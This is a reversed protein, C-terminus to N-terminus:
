DNEGRKEGFRQEFEEDTFYEPDAHEWRESEAWALMDAESAPYWDNLHHQRIPIKECEYRWGRKWSPRRIVVCDDVIGRVEFFRNNGNGENWWELVVAGPKLYDRFTGPTFCPVTPRPLQQSIM